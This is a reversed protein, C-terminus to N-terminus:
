PSQQRSRAALDTFLAEVARSVARAAAAASMDQETTLLFWSRTGSLMRIVAAADDVEEAPLTPFARALHAHIARTRDDYGRARRGLAISIVVYARMADRLADFSSFLPGVLGPLDEVTDLDPHTIGAQTARRELLEDLGDLLAERSEFHRYVTRHAVGAANAVNQVTFAHVGERTVVEVVADLIRERTEQLAERRAPSDYKRTM